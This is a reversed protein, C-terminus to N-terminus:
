FFTPIIYTIGVSCTNISMNAPIIDTFGTALQRSWSYNALFNLRETLNIRLNAGAFVANTTIEDGESDFDTLFENRGYGGNVSVTSRKTIRRGLSATATLNQVVSGVGLGDSVGQNVGFSFFTRPDLALSEALRIGANVSARLGPKLRVNTSLDISDGITYSPGVNVFGSIIPTFQRTIGLYATHNRSIQSPTILGVSGQEREAVDFYSFGYGLNLGTRDSLQYSYSLNGGFRNTERLNNLTFRSLSGNAGFTVQSRRSVEYSLSTYATNLITKNLPLLLSTNPLFDPSLPPLVLDAPQLLRGADPSVSFRDGLSFALRPTILRRIDLGGNHTLQSYADSRNYIRAGLMYDLGFTTREYQRQYAVRSHLNSSTDFKKNSDDELLVNDHVTEYAGFSLILSDRSTFFIDGLATASPTRPDPQGYRGKKPDASGVGSEKTQGHLAPNLSLIWALLCLVIKQIQLMIEIAEEPLLSSEV